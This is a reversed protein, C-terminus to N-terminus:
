QKKIFLSFLNYKEEYDYYDINDIKKLKKCIACTIPLCSANYLIKIVFEIGMMEFILWQPLIGYFAVEYFLLGGFIVGLITSSILRLPLFKGSFIVKTRSLLIANCFEGVFFAIVSAFFIRASLDLTLAFASQGNYYVSPKIRVAALILVMFIVNCRLGGWIIFRNVRFGYVETVIDDCVYTLPYFLLAVSFTIKSSFLNINILKPGRINSAILFITFFM